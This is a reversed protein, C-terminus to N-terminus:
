QANLVVVPDVKTARRAPFVSAALATGGLVLAVLAIVMPDTPAVGYVLGQLARGLFAIGAVGLVLGVAVLVVGERLVLAFVQRVTSGLAMRIGIEHSRQAVLYALVGYIGLASLFLAVGGFAVAIGMALRERALSANTREVMTRVDFLALEPDLEALHARLARIVVGSDGRPKIAFVYKRHSAQAQPTYFTGISDQAGALSEFLVEPVVGVITLWRTRETVVATNGGAGATFFRKGIPDVGPWFSRALREDVIAVGPASANDSEAFYRGRTLPISMTELFGPTVHVWAPAVLAEDAPNENRGEVFIAQAPTQGGHLPIVTTSGASLVGPTNRIRELLGDVLARVPEDDRYRLGQVDVAATVISDRAFGPDVSLLNRVTTFLLGAGVLLVFALAVQAVVLTRRITRAKEGTAGTHRDQRLLEALKDRKVHACSALVVFLGSAVALAFVFGVVPWDLRVGDLAFFRDVRITGILRLVAAALGMGLLGGAIAITSAEVMLLRAVRAPGAGLTMRLAQDRARLRSQALALNALNVAGILLVFLAGAWLAYLSGRVNRVLLEQLPEVTTHFGAQELLVRLRPLEELMAANTADVQQQAQERTAGPKLRGINYWNNAIPNQKQPATFALPVWFRVYPDFFSFREPMVGVITFPRGTLNIEAGVADPDGAFLQQWLGYSLIVRQENGVEAEDDTFSRGVVPSVGLLRFLSPTAAMGHLRETGSDRSLTHDAGGFLAQESFATVAALRDYYNRPASSDGIGPGSNPFQNGMLMIRSPDPVALPNLLGQQVIAFVVANAGLCVALTLIATASFGRHKRLFRWGARVDLGLGTALFQGARSREARDVAAAIPEARVLENCLESWSPVQSELEVWADDESMGRKLLSEYIDELQAGLEEAVKLQQDAPLGLSEIRERVFAKVDRMSSAGRANSQM